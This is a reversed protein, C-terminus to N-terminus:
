ILRYQKDNIESYNVYLHNKDLIELLFKKMDELSLDKFEEVNEDIKNPNVKVINFEASCCFCFSFMLKFNIVIM